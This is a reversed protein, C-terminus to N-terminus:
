VRSLLKRRTGGRGGVWGQGIRRGGGGAATLNANGAIVKEEGTRSM